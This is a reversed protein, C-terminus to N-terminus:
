PRAEDAIIRVVDPSTTGTGTPHGYPNWGQNWICLVLTGDRLRLGRATQHITVIEGDVTYPAVAEKGDPNLVYISPVRRNGAFRLFTSNGDDWITPELARDGQGVYRRNILAPPAQKLLAAARAALTKAHAKAAAARRSQRADEPYTFRVLYYTNPTAQTNDGDRTQWQFIYLRATGNPKTTRVSIPQADMKGTPKFWLVNGAQARKLDASDSVAVQAISEDDGFQLTLTAGISAFLTVVQGPNYAVTRIRADNAGPQPAQLALVPKSFSAALLVSALLPARM